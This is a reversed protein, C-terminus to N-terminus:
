EVEGAIIEKIWKFDYGKEKAEVVDRLKTLYWIAKNLDEIGNKNKYRLVYKLVNGELFGVFMDYELMTELVDIVEMKMSTYHNPHNVMDGKAEKIEKQVDDIINLMEKAVSNVLM